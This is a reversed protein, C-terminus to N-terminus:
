QDIDSPGQGPYVPCLPFAGEAFKNFQQALTRACGRCFHRAVSKQLASGGSVFRMFWKQPCRARTFQCAVEGMFGCVVPSELGVKLHEAIM